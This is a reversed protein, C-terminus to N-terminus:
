KAIKKKPQIVIEEEEDKIDDGFVEKFNKEEVLINVNTSKKILKKAGSVKAVGSVKAGSKKKKIEGLQAQTRDKQYERYENELITLESLWMEEITTSKIRELEDEKIQNELVLKEVNEESVSDMPMKVLYKFEEDNEIRDYGKTLLMDIIEQKKKKRLDITDELNEKIYRVKNSLIVIEKELNDIMYKKRYEYHELRIEYYDDIIEEVNEYKKLKDDSNFLNM